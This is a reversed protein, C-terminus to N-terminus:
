DLLTFVTCVLARVCMSVRETRSCIRVLQACGHSYTQTKVAAHAEVDMRGTLSDIKGKKVNM